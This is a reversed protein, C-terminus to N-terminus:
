PRTTAGAPPKLRETRREALAGALRAALERKVEDMPPCRDGLLHELSTVPRGILGCPVILQFHDLNTRVNLALGHMSVWKRLRVGMACIKAGGASDGMTGGVTAKSPRHVRGGAGSTPGDEPEDVPATASGGGSGARGTAGDLDVWVGTAGEDRRARVGFRACTQIVVEELLRMYEHLRLNLHNLDLIPYAVLQGPGHYTIDGGRDTRAVAVGERLLVEETAVLHGAATPRKSITIVPDHEVLLLRGVEPRGAGRSALVEELHERQLQYAPEYAMRGLDIVRLEDVTLPVPPGAGSRAARV